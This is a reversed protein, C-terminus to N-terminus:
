KRAVGAMIYRWGPPVIRDFLAKDMRGLVDRQKESRGFTGTFGFTTYSVESFPKLFELMEAITLYRWSAGWKVFRRRFYRHAPSATLNEAFFLEGGWKLAKHIERIARAQSGKTIPRGVAGLVSKFAVIDFEERYPIELASVAEYKIADSVGAERHKEVAEPRPGNLDSCTVRAGQSALWLSLGGYNCGIELASCKSLDQSTNSKWFELAASWNRVDWEIYDTLKDNEPM